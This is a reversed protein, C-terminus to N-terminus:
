ATVNGVGWARFGDRQQIFDLVMRGLAESDERSLEVVQDDAAIDDMLWEDVMECIHQGLSFPKIFDRALRREGVYVTVEDTPEAEHCLEFRAQAAADERTTANTDHYREGDASIVFSSM